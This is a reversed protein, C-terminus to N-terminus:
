IYGKFCCCLLLNRCVPSEWSFQYWKRVPFGSGSSPSSSLLTSLPLMTVSVLVGGGKLLSLIGLDRVFASPEQQCGNQWFLFVPSSKLSSGCTASESAQPLLFVYVFLSPLTVSDKPSGGQTRRSKYCTYFSIIDIFWFHTLVHSFVVPCHKWM